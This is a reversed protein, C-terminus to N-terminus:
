HVRSFGGRRLVGAMFESNAAIADALSLVSRRAVVKSYLLLGLPAPLAPVPLELNPSIPSNAIHRLCKGLELTYCTGVGEIYHTGIPCTPWYIQACAIVPVGEQHAALVLSSDFDYFTLIVDPKSRRLRRRYAFLRRPEFDHPMLGLALFGALGRRSGEREIKLGREALGRELLDAFVPEGGQWDREMSAGAFLVRTPRPEAMSIMPRRTRSSLRCLSM